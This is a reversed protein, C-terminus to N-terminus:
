GLPTSHAVRIPASAATTRRLALDSPLFLSLSLCVSLSPLLPPPLSPPLSHSLPPPDRGPGVCLVALFVRVPGLTLGYEGAPGAAAVVVVAATTAASKAAAASAAAAAPRAVRLCYLGCCQAAAARSRRLERSPHGPPGPGPAAPPPSRSTRRPARADTDSFQTHTRACTDRHAPAAAAVAAARLM